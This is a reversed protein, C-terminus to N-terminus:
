WTGFGSVGVYPRQAEVVIPGTYRPAAWLYPHRTNSVWSPSYQYMFPTVNATPRSLSVGYWERAAIRAKREVAAQEARRRVIMEPNNAEQKMQEYFWM